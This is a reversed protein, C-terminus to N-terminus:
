VKSTMSFTYSVVKKAGMFTLVKSVENITSGTTFVDDIIAVIKGDVYKEFGKKPLITGAVNDKRGNATLKVQRVKKVSRLPSCYFLQLDKAIIKSILASQNYGRSIFTTVPAPVPVVVDIPIDILTEMREAISKAIRFHGKYKFESLIKKSKGNYLCYARNFSLFNFEHLERSYETKLPRGTKKDFPEEIRELEEFCSDCVPQFFGTNGGCILCKRKM